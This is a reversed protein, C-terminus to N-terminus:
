IDMFVNPDIREGGRSPSPLVRHHQHTSDGRQTTEPIAPLAIRSIPHIPPPTEFSLSSGPSLAAREIRLEIKTHEKTLGCLRRNYLNEKDGMNQPRRLAKVIRKSWKAILLPPQGVKLGYQGIEESISSFELLDWVPNMTSRLPWVSVEGEDRPSSWELRNKYARDHSQKAWKKVLLPPYGRSM